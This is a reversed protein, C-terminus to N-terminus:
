GGNGYSLSVARTGTNIEVVGDYPDIKTVRGVDRIMDGEAVTLTEGSDSKLWARGPIIAQVNYAIKVDPAQSPIPAPAPPSAMSSGGSVGVTHQRTLVQVLQNLKSEMDAVRSNLNQIQDQIAKNQSSFSNFQQSYQTQLQDMAKQSIASLAATKAELEGGMGSMMSPTAPPLSTTNTTPITSQVPIVAPLTAVASPNQNAQVTVAPQQPQQQINAQTQQVLQQAMQAANNLISGQGTQTGTGPVTGAQQAVPVAAPQNAPPAMSPMGAVAPAQAGALNAPAAAIAPTTTATAPQAAAVAAPQGTQTAPQNGPMSTPQASTVAPAATIDTTPVSTGTGVMKYAVFVLVLFVGLSILMRKSNTLRTVISEKQEGSSAAPASKQTEADVEYSVEEDSFHYESEEHGEFKDDRDISM